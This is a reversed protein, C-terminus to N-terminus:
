DTFLGASSFRLRMPKTLRALYRTAPDKVLASFPAQDGIVFNSYRYYDRDVIARLSDDMAQICHGPLIERFREFDNDHIVPRRVVYRFNYGTVGPDTKNTLRIGARTHRAVM